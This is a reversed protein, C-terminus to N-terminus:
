STSITKSGCVGSSGRSQAREGERAPAERLAEDQYRACAEGMEAGLKMVTDKSVGVM